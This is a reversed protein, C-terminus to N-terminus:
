WRVAALAQRGSWRRRRARRQEADAVDVLVEGAGLQEDAEGEGEDVACRGRVLEVSAM